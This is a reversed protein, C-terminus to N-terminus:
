NEPELLVAFSMFITWVLVTLDLVIRSMQCTESWDPLRGNLVKCLVKLVVSQLAIVRYNAPNRPDPTNPHVLASCWEM